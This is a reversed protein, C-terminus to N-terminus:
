PKPWHPIQTIASILSHNDVTREKKIIAWLAPQESRISPKSYVSPLLSCEFRCRWVAIFWYNLVHSSCKFYYSFISVFQKFHGNETDAIQHDGKTTSYLVVSHRGTLCQSIRTKKLTRESLNNLQFPRRSNDLTRACEAIPWWHAPLRIFQLLRVLLQLSAM